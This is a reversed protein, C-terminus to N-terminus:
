LSGMSFTIDIAYTGDKLKEIKEVRAAEMIEDDRFAMYEGIKLDQYNDKKSYEIYAGLKEIYQDMPLPVDTVFGGKMQNMLTAVMPFWYASDSPAGAFRSTEFRFTLAVSECGSNTVTVVDGSKLMLSEIGQLLYVDKTDPVKYASLDFRTNPFVKKSIVAEPISRTCEREMYETAKTVLSEDAKTVTNTTPVPISTEDKHKSDFFTFGAYLAIIILITIIIKKKM